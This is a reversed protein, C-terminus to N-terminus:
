KREEPLTDMAIESKNGDWRLRVLVQGDRARYVACFPNEWLDVMGPCEKLAQQRLADFSPGETRHVWTRHLQLLEEMQCGLVRAAVEQMSLAKFDLEPGTSKFVAWQELPLPNRMMDLMAETMGCEDCIYLDAYRSLANHALPAKITNRGCRPCPMQEGADQRARLDLLQSNIEVKKM